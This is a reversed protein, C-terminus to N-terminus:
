HHVPLVATLVDQLYAVLQPLREEPTVSRRFPRLIRGQEQRPQSGPSEAPTLDITAFLTLSSSPEQGQVVFSLSPETWSRELAHQVIVSQDASLGPVHLLLPRTQLRQWLDKITEQLVPHRWHPVIEVLPELVFRRFWMLPHPVTLDPTEQVLDNFLLLDLDLTRPGWVTTRTRGALQEIDHLLSLLRAPTLESQVVIAANVFESGANAGMPPTRLLASRQQVTAGARDLQECAFDFTREPDALNAGLAICCHNM